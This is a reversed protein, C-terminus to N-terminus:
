LWPFARDWLNTFDGKWLIAFHDAGHYDELATRGKRILTLRQAALWEVAKALQVGAKDFLSLCSEMGQRYARLLWVSEFESRIAQLEAYLLHVERILGLITEPTLDDAKMQDKIRYGLLGKRGTYATMRASLHLEDLFPEGFLEKWHEDVYRKRGAANEDIVDRLLNVARSGNRLFTEFAERTVAPYHEDGNMSLGDLLDDFFAYLTMTKYGSQIGPPLNSDMLLRFAEEERPDCFVLDRVSRDFDEAQIPTGYLCQRGGLLYGYLSLGLPQAHGHDGWDTVLFGEAGRERAESSFRILNKDANYVRPFISNWTNVGGAAWFRMRKEQYTILSPYHDEPTYHWDAVVVDEPLEPLLEPYKAVIDGWVIFKEVGYKRAIEIVRLMHDFYVRGKGKSAVLDKSYGSGIDYAEDMNLNLTKSSFWPLTESLETEIFRYVADNGPAFSFLTDNESLDSFEPLALIGLVHSFTQICPQLEVYVSRCFSDLERIQEESYAGTIGGIEPHSHVALKDECYLQLINYGVQPMWAALHKLYAITAMKGRSVDLMIGRDRFAPIVTQEGCPLNGCEATFIQALMAIGSRLGQISSSLIAASDHSIRLRWSGVRPEEEPSLRITLPFGFISDEPLVSLINGLQEWLDPSCDVNFCSVAVSKEM